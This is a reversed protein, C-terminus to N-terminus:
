SGIIKWVGTASAVQRGKASLEGRMFVLHRTQREITCVIEVCEGISVPEYFQMSFQATAQARNQDYQRATRGMARDAFTMLMGGQVFGGRNRHKAEAFFRFRGEGESFPVHYVPGVHAIFGDDDEIQWGGAISM